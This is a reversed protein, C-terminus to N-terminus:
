NVFAKEKKIQKLKLPDDTIIGSVGLKEVYLYEERTNVTYVFIPIQKKRCWKLIKQDLFKIDVHFIDPRIINAWFYTRIIWHVDKKTYLYGTIIQNNRKKIKYLLIPNFSSVITKSIIKNKKIYDVVDKEVNNNFFSNSKIELNLLQINPLIRSLDDIINLPEKTQIKNIELYKKEKITSIKDILFSDHHIFLYNDKSKQVDLEIGDVGLEIAKKFSSITNEREYAPAGRHGLIIIKNKYQNSIWKTKWTNNKIYFYLAVIFIISIIM